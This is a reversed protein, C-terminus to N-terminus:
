SPRRASKRPKGLVFALGLSPRSISQPAPQRTQECIRQAFRTLPSRAFDPDLGNGAHGPLAFGVPADLPRRTVLARTRGPVRPLTLAWSGRRATVPRQKPSPPLPALFPLHTSGAPSPRIGKSLPVSRLAFGLLAAPVFCPRRPSPPLFGDLPSGFGSPPVYRSRSAGRSTSRRVRLHQLSCFDL